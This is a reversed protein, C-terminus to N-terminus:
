EDSDDYGSDVGGAGNIRLYGYQRPVKLDDLLCGSKDVAYLNCPLEAAKRGDQQVGESHDDISAVHALTDPLITLTIVRPPRSEVVM